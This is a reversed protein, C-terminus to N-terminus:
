GKTQEFWIGPAKDDGKPIFMKNDRQDCLVFPSFFDFSFLKGQTGIEFGGDATIKVVAELPPNLYYRHNKGIRRFQVRINAGRLKKLLRATTEVIVESLGETSAPKTTHEKRHNMVTPKQMRVIEVM